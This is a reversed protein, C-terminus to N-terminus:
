FSSHAYRYHFQNEMSIYADETVRFPILACFLDYTSLNEWHLVSM